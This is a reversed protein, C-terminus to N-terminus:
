RWNKNIYKIIEEKNNELLGNLINLEIDHIIDKIHEGPEVNLENMIDNGDIDIDNISYIPLQKYLDSIYAHSYGLIDSAVICPYLGEHYLIINDIIGYNIVNKIHKIKDLELTKFNYEESFEIQAWIGLYDDTYIIRDYYIGLEDFLDLKRIYSIGSIKNASKFISDLEQKKRTFSLEKILKKNNKIFEALKDELKFDLLASFRIARLIRLPDESIKKEIDGICRIIKNDIDEMGKYPDYIKGTIDMYISNITFDRRKADEIFSDIFEVSDPHRNTYNDEKRFTTIDYNYLSDKFIVHGYNEDNSNVLEFIEKVEKPTASTAIDVDYTERGIIYDRVFGGIVYAEYGKDNLKKLINKIKENM